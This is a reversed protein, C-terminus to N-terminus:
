VVKPKESYNEPGNKRVPTFNSKGHDLHLDVRQLVFTNPFDALYVLVKQSLTELVVINERVFVKNEWLLFRM